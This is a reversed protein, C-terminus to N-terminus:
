SLSLLESEVIKKDVPDFKYLGAFRGHSGTQCIKDPSEIITHTHGGLILDFLGTDQLKLDQPYGIHTIAFLLDVQEKIEEAYRCATEIPDTWVFHSILVTKQHKQVIPVMVGIIGIKFGKCEVIHYPPFVLKDQKDTLNACILPHSATKVKSQFLPAFPNTERNGLVSATCELKKLYSWYSDQFMCFGLNGAVIGDGCDFYLDAKKRLELLNEFKSESLKGHFDNTHLITIM